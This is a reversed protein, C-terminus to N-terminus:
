RHVSRRCRHLDRCQGRRSGRGPRRRHRRSWGSWLTTIEKSEPDVGQFPWSGGGRPWATGSRTGRIDLIKASGHSSDTLIGAQSGTYSVAPIGRSNLSISLLALDAGGASLLM